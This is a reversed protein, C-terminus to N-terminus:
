QASDLVLFLSALFLAVRHRETVATMNCQFLFQQDLNSHWTAVSPKDLNEAFNPNLEYSGVRDEKIRQNIKKKKKTYITTIHGYAYNWASKVLRQRRTKRFRVWWAEQLSYQLGNCYLCEMFYKWFLRQPLEQFSLM